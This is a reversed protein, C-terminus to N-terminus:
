YLKMSYNVIFYFYHNKGTMHYDDARNYTTELLYQPHLSLQDNVKYIVGMYLRNMSYGSGEFFPEGKKIQNTGRDEVLGFFVEDGLTLTFGHGVTYYLQVFERMLLSWGRREDANDYLANNAYFKNHFITRNMVMFNGLRYIFIPLIEFNHSYFYDDDAGNLGKIPFGMYYYWLPLKFTLNETLRFNFTPGMFLEYFVSGDGEDDERADNYWEYRYGPMITFDLDPSLNLTVNLYDWNRHRHVVPATQATADLVMSAIAIAALVTCLALKAFRRKM